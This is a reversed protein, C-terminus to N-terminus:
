IKPPWTSVHYPVMSAQKSRGRSYTKAGILWAVVPPLCIRELFLGIDNSVVGQPEARHHTIRNQPMSCMRRLCVGTVQVGRVGFRLYVNGALPRSKGRLSSCRRGLFMFFRLWGVRDILMVYLFGGADALSGIGLRKGEYTALGGGLDQTTQQVPVKPRNDDRCM